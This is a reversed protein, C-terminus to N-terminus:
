QSQSGRVLIWFKYKCPDATLYWMQKFRSTSVLYYRCMYSLFQVFCIVISHYRHKITNASDNMFLVFGLRVLCVTCNRLYVWSAGRFTVWVYCLTSLFLLLIWSACPLFVICLVVHCIFFTITWVLVHEPNVFLTSVAPLYSVPSSLWSLAPSPCSILCCM